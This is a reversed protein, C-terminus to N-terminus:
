GQWQRRRVRGLKGDNLAGNPVSGEGRQGRAHRALLFRGEDPEEFGITVPQKTIDDHEGASVLFGRLLRHLQGQQADDPM